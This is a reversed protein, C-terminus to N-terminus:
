KRRRRRRRRRRTGPARIASPRPLSDGFWEGWRDQVAQVLEPWRRLTSSQRVLSFADARAQLLLQRDRPPDAWVFEPLEEARDGLLARSGRVQLDLEALRFGDEERIVQEILTRSKEAPNDSLIYLGSGARPGRSIHGRLRHLRVMDHLDAYEVVLVTANDLPPAEEIYTTCVLIDIRRHQFDDFVRFREDRTMPSCYIGIRKDPFAEAQLAKAMRLADDVGLLDKGDRVPFVVFAQRGADILDNAAAYAMRREDADFVMGTSRGLGTAPVVSVDFEGFVTFALSSPIPAATTVLLDPRVNKAQPLMEPTVTGYEGREECVVLGLRRWHIDNALIRRTGFVVHAEGRRIADAQGHSVTDTILLPVINISRLLPEAFLYRREVALPDPGVVAVQLRSEAVMAATMLTVLGKGTGVDGQLLRAMPESRALDRRIDAFAREQGDNLHLNHQWGLQAIGTHSITHGIGREAQGRGARWVVGLQLQLLEEFALRIRGRGASNAPFHADHLAEALSLLRHKEILSAPLRDVLVGQVSVLAESVADRLQVDDLGPLGYMPMLGSGQGAVGIPEAEYMMFTGDEDQEVSGLLALTDGRSWGTFGRPAASIWRCVLRAGDQGTLIVEWRRGAPSLRQCCTHVAARVTFTGEAMDARISGAPTRVHTAPPWRLLDAITEIGAEVLAEAMGEDVARLASVPRGTHEPDGLAFAEPEPEPEPELAPEPVILDALPVEAPSPAPADAEPLPAAAAPAAEDAAPNPASASAKAGKKRRPKPDPKDPVILTSQPPLPAGQQSLPIVQRLALQLSRLAAPQESAPRADFGALLARTRLLSVQLDAEADWATLAEDMLRGCNVGLHPAAALREPEVAVWELTRSISALRGWAAPPIQLQQNLESEM